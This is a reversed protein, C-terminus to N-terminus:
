LYRNAHSVKLALHDRSAQKSSGAYTKTQNVGSTSDRAEIKDLRTLVQELLASHRALEQKFELPLPAAVGQVQEGSALSQDAPGPFSQGM